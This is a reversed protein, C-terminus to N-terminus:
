GRRWFSALREFASSWGGLDGDRQDISPFVAQHFTMTMRGGHDAFTVTVVAEHGARGCEDEWAYTFVLREPVVIERYVGAQWRKRM